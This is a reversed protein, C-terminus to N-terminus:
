GNRVLAKFWRSQLILYAIFVITIILLVLLRVRLQYESQVFPILLIAVITFLEAIKIKDSFIAAIIGGVAFGGLALPGLIIGVSIPLAITMSLILNKNQKDNRASHFPARCDKQYIAENRAIVLSALYYFGGAGLLLGALLHPDALTLNTGVIKQSFIIGFGIILGISGFQWFNKFRVTAHNLQSFDSIAIEATKAITKQGSEFDLYSNRVLSILFIPSTSILAIAVGFYGVLFYGLWIAGALILPAIIKDNRPPKAVHCDKQHITDNRAIVLTLIGAVVGVIVTLFIRVSPIEAPLLFRSSFYGAIIILIASIASIKFWFTKQNGIRALLNAIVVSIAGAAFIVLPFQLVLNNAPYFIKAILIAIVPLSILSSELAGSAIAIITAGLALAVLPYFDSFILTTGLVAIITIAVPFIAVLLSVNRSIKKAVNEKGSKLLAVSRGAIVSTFRMWFFSSIIISIVGVVFSIAAQWSILYLIAVTVIALLPSLDKASKWVEASKTKEFSNAADSLNKAGTSMKKVSRFKLIGIIMGVAGLGFFSIIEINRM